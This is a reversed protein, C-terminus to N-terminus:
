SSKVGPHSVWWLGLSLSLRPTRRCRRKSWPTESTVRPNVSLAMMCGASVPVWRERKMGVVGEGGEGVVRWGSWWGDADAGPAMREWRIKNHKKTRKNKKKATQGNSKHCRLIEVLEMLCCKSDAYGASLCSALSQDNFQWM